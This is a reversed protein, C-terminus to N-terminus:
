QVDAHLHNTRKIESPDRMKTVFEHVKIILQLKTFGPYMIWEFEMPEGDITDLTKYQPSDKFWGLQREWVFNSTPNLNM